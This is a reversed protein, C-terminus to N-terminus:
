IVNAHTFHRARSLYIETIVMLVFDLLYSLEANIARAYLGYFRKINVVFNQGM